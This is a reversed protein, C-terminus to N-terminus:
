FFFLLETQQQKFILLPLFFFSYIPALFSPTQKAPANEREKSKFINRPNESVFLRTIFM